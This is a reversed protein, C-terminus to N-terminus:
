QGGRRSSPSPPIHHQPHRPKPFAPLAHRIHNRGRQHRTPSFRTRERPRSKSGQGRDLIVNLAGISWYHDSVPCTISMSPCIGSAFAIFPGSGLGSFSWRSRIRTQTARVGVPDASMFINAARRKDSVGSSVTGLNEIPFLVVENWYAPCGCCPPPQRCIHPAIYTSTVLPCAASARHIM